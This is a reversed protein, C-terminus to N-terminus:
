AKKYTKCKCCYTTFINAHVDDSLFLIHKLKNSAIIRNLKLTIFQTDTQLFCIHKNRWQVDPSSGDLTLFFKM